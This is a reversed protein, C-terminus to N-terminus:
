TLQSESHKKNDRKVKKVKNIDKKVRQEHSRIRHGDKKERPLFNKQNSRKKHHLGDEHDHLVRKVVHSMIENDAAAQHRRKQGIM